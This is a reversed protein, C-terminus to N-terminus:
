LRGTTKAYLYADALETAFRGPAADVVTVGMGRLRAVTRRRDALAQVAAAQRYAAAEADLDDGPDTGSAWAEVQPDRVGGIIVLHTRTILPLAPLLSEEIAHDVLDTLLVLMSRRRFRAVVQAFASSYDSEALEPELQYMAETVRSVQDTRRAPPVIERVVRDFAVLGCRDGLRTAVTTLMMAADMSHEVRPVGAVRGAM